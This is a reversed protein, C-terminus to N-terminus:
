CFVMTLIMLQAYDILPEDHNGMIFQCDLELLLEIVERPQIGLSAVDGLCIISQVNSKNIDSIFAIRM